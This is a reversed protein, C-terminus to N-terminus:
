QVLSLNEERFMVKQKQIIVNMIELITRKRHKIADIFWNASETKNKIFKRAARDLSKSDLM